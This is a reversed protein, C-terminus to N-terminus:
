YISSVIDDQVLHECLVYVCRFIRGENRIQIADTSAKCVGGLVEM